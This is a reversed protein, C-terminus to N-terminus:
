NEKIVYEKTEFLAYSELAAKILLRSSDFNSTPMARKILEFDSQAQRLANGMTRILEDRAQIQAKAEVLKKELASIRRTIYKEISEQLKNTIASLKTVFSDQKPTLEESM